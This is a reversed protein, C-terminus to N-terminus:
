WGRTRDLRLGNGLRRAVRDVADAGTEYMAAAQTASRRLGATRAVAAAIAAAVAPAPEDPEAAHELRWWTALGRAALPLGNIPLERAWLATAVPDLDSRPDPGARLRAAIEGAGNRALVLPAPSPMVEGVVPKGADLWWVLAYPYATGGATVDGTTLEPRGPTSPLTGATVQAPWEGPPIGIACLPAGPGYLRYLASLPSHRVLKHRPWRDGMTVAQWFALALRSGTREATASAPGARRTTRKSSRRPPPPRKSSGTGGRLPPAAASATEPRSARSRRTAAPQAPAAAGVRPEHAGTTAPRSERPAGATAASPREPGAGPSALCQRCGLRERDAVLGAAAGCAPCRVDAFTGAGALWAFALPYSRSGRRIAVPLVFAPAHVLHLRFPKVTHRAQHEEEIERRRRAHERRTADAQADLLALREPPATAKRRHITELAGDYYADARALESALARQAQAALASRRAEARRELQANAGALAGVLDGELATNSTDPESLRPRGALAHLAAPPLPLGTRADVWAEEPEQFRLSLSAAYSVLAGVRLLPVYAPLPRDRADIRGHDVSFRERARAEFVATAPPASSPWPLYLRAVDGDDLIHTAARELAPHGAILLVAGDERAVDPDSTVTVEEPLEAAARLPQPLLLLAHDGADEVLAGESEAYRLWFRLSPEHAPM